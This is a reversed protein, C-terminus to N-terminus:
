RKLGDFMHRGKDSVWEENVEENVRPLIRMIEAGRNNIEINAGFGDSPDISYNSKLEWPRATFTYPM